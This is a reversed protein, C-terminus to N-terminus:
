DPLHKMILIQRYANDANTRDSVETELDAVLTTINSENTSVRVELANIDEETAGLLSGIGTMSLENLDNSTYSDM